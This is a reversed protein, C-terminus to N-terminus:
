FNVCEGGEIKVGEAYRATNRKFGIEVPFWNVYELHSVIILVDGDFNELKKKLWDFDHRHSSDSWLKEEIFVETAPLVRTIIETTKMARNAPSSWIVCQNDAGSLSAKIKRAIGYVQQIGRDSLKPNSGLDTYAGNRVLFIVGNELIM